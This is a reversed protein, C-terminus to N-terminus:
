QFSFAYLKHYGVGGLRGYGTGWYVWDNYIAPGSMVTGGSFFTWLIKGDYASLATMYGSSAGAFVVNNTFTLAAPASAYYTSNALDKGYAPVEWVMKGNLANLKAWAGARWQIQTGWFDTLTNVRHADNKLAVYINQHNDFDLASGWQIGGQGVLTAWFVGGNDPNIAHYFGSKQGAGLLWSSSTGGRDDPVGVFGTVNALNPASAFDYDMGPPQVCGSSTNCAATWTDAGQFRRGWKLRGSQLDLAIIADVYDSPDLCNLQADPDSGAQDVCSEASAPISYNNNAAIYLSGRKADVVPSSVVAGGTYGAPVTTFRWILAGTQLNLAVVSGRFGGSPPHALSEERSALGVYVINNYVTPSMSAFADTNTEVRTQWILQGTSKNIAIVRAQSLDEILITNGVITPSSRSVSNSDGTYYSVAHSWIVQGSVPDLKWLMGGWDPVYLGGAEVTPTASVDGATTFSWKVALRKVTSANLQNPGIPSLMARSDLIDAGSTAWPTPDARVTTSSAVVAASLAVFHVASLATRIVTTLM